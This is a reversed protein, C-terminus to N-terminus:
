PRKLGISALFADVEKDPGTVFEEYLTTSNHDHVQRGTRIAGHPIHNDDVLRLVGRNTFYLAVLKAM